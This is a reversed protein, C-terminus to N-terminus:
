VCTCATFLLLQLPEWILCPIGLNRTLPSHQPDDDSNWAGGVWIKIQAHSVTAESTGNLRSPTQTRKLHHATKNTGLYNHLRFYGNTSLKKVEFQWHLRSDFSFGTIRIKQMDPHSVTGILVLLHLEVTRQEM